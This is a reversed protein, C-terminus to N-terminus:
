AAKMGPVLPIVLHRYTMKMPIHKFYPNPLASIPCGANVLDDETVKFEKLVDSVKM